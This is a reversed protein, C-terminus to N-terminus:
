AAARRGYRSPTAGEWFADEDAPTEEVREHPLRHDDGWM